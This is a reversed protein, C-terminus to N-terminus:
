RDPYALKVFAELKGFLEFLDAPPQQKSRGEWVDLKDLEPPYHRLRIKPQRDLGIDEGLVIRFDGEDHDARWSAVEVQKAAPLSRAAECYQELAQRAAPSLPDRPHDAALLHMAQFLFVRSMPLRGESRYARALMPLSDFARLEALLYVASPAAMRCRYYEDPQTVAVPQTPDLKAAAELHAKRAAPYGAVSRAFLAQLLLVVQEPRKGGEEVIKRVRLLKPIFLSLYRYSDEGAFDDISEVPVVRGPFLDGKVWLTDDFNSLHKITDPLSEQTLTKVLRVRYPLPAPKDPKVRDDGGSWGVTFATGLCALILSAVWPMKM